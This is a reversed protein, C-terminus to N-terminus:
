TKSLINAASASWYLAKSFLMPSGSRTAQDALIGSWRYQRRLQMEPIGLRASIQSTPKLVRLHLGRIERLRRTTTEDLTQRPPANNALNDNCREAEGGM